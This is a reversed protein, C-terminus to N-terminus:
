VLGHLVAPRPLAHLVGVHSALHAGCRNGVALARPLSLGQSMAWCFGAAFADGCGVTDGPATRAEGAAHLPEGVDRQWAVCGLPGLTIVVLQAGPHAAWFPPPAANSGQEDKSRQGPAAQQARLAHLLPQVGAPGAVLAAVDLGLLATAETENVLYTHVAARLPPPLDQWPSPNLVTRVGAEHALVLAQVVADLAVEFQGYVLAARAIAHQAQRVHAPQLHDNAGPFVAIRNDGSADIFGAGWGSPMPLAHVHGADLGETQLLARLQEGAADQGHALIPTVQMGLRQLAVAVNLGKGGPESHFGLARRTEGAEPARDVQWCCAQVFNALVVASPSNANTM